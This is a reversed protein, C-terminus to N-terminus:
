GGEDTGLEFLQAYIHKIKRLIFSFYEQVTGLVYYANLLYTNFLIKSYIFSFVSNTEVDHGDHSGKSNIKGIRHKFEWNLSNFKDSNYSDMWEEQVADVKSETSLFAVSRLNQSGNADTANKSLNM